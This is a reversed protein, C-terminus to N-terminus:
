AAISYVSVDNQKERVIAHGKKRLGTLAARTTHPLWGTAATLDALTAGGDQCLMNLMLTTKNQPPPAAPLVDVEEAPIAAPEENAGIAARGTDTIFIGFRENAEQRWLRDEGVRLSSGAVLERESVLASRILANITRNLTARPRNLTDPIPLLSGDDRGVAASLLVLQMDTLRPNATTM